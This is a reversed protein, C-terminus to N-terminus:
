FMVAARIGSTHWVHLIVGFDLICLSNCPDSKVRSFKSWVRLNPSIFRIATDDCGLYRYLGTSRHPESEFPSHFDSM